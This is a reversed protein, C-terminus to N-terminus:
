LRIEELRLDINIEEMHGYRGRTERLKTGEIVTRCANRPVGM